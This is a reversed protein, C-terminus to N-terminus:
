FAATQMSDAYLSFEFAPTGFFRTLAPIREVWSDIAYLDAAAGRGALLPSSRLLLFPM